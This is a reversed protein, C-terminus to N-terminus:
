FYFIQNIEWVDILMYYITPLITIYYLKTIGQFKILKRKFFFQMIYKMEAKFWLILSCIQLFLVIYVCFAVTNKKKKSEPFRCTRQFLLFDFFNVSISSIVFCNWIMLWLNLDGQKGELQEPGGGLTRRPNLELYTVKFTRIAKELRRQKHVATIVSPASVAARKM